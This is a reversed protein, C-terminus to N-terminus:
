PSHLPEKKDRNWAKETEQRVAQREGAWKVSNVDLVSVRLSHHDPLM